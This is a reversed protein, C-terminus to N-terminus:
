NTSTLLRDSFAFEGYHEREASKRATIAEEMTKFTGLHLRKRSSADVISALWRKIDKRYTVGPQPSQLNKGMPRRKRQNSANQRASCIRLNSRRCDFADGNAHDIFLDRNFKTFPSIRKMIERHLFIASRKKGSTLRRIASRAGRKTFHACWAVDRVLDSDECDVLVAIKGYKKSEIAHHYM